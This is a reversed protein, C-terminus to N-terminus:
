FPTAVRLHFLRITHKASEISYWRTVSLRFSLRVSLCRADRPLFLKGYSRTLVVPLTNFLTSTSAYWFVTKVLRKSWHRHRRQTYSVDVCQHRQASNITTMRTKPIRFLQPRCGLDVGFADYPPTIRRGTRSSSGPLTTLKRPRDLVAAEALFLNSPNQSNFTLAGPLLLTVTEHSTFLMAYFMKLWNSLIPCLCLIIVTKQHFYLKQPNVRFHSFHVSAAPSPAAPVMIVMARLSGQWFLEGGSAFAPPPEVRHRRAEQRGTRRNTRENRRKYTQRRHCRQTTAGPSAALM